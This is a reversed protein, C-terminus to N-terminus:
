ALNQRGGTFGCHCESDVGLADYVGIGIDLSRTTASSWVV